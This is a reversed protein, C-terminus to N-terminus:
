VNFSHKSVKSNWFMEHKLNMLTIPPTYPFFKVIEFCKMNLTWSVKAIGTSSISNNWFMEHKLNM